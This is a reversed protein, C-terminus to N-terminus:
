YMPWMEVKLSLRVFSTDFKKNSATATQSPQQAKIGTRSILSVLPLPEKKQVCVM